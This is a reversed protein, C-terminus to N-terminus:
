KRITPKAKRGGVISPAKDQPQSSQKTNRVIPAAAGGRIISPPEVRLLSAQGIVPEQASAGTIVPKLGSAAPNVTTLYGRTALGIIDM